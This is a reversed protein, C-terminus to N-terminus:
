RSYLELGVIDCVNSGNRVNVGVDFKGDCGTAVLGCAWINELIFLLVDDIVVLWCCNLGM